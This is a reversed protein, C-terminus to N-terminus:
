GLSRLYKYSPDLMEEDTVGLDTTGPRVYIADERVHIPNIQAATVLLDKFTSRLWMRQDPMRCAECVLGDSASGRELLFLITVFMYSRPNGVRYPSGNALAADVEAQVARADAVTGSTWQDFEDRSRGEDEIYDWVGFVFGAEQEVLAESVGRWLTWKRQHTLNAPSSRILNRLHGRLSTTSELELFVQIAFLNGSM